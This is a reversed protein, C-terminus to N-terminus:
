FLNKKTVFMSSNVKKVEEVKPQSVITEKIEEKPEPKNEEIQPTNKVEPVVVEEKFSNNNSNAVLTDPNGFIDDTAFMDTLDATKEPEQTVVNKPSEVVTEKVEKIVEKNNEPLTTTNNEEINHLDEQVLENAEIANELGTAKVNSDDDLEIIKLLEELTTLGDLVKDIGDQLLSIVDSTYVLRRLKDKRVNSSIADKINQDILLVEHIAIRGNYGNKCKDCGVATYIENLENGTVKKIIDKEYDNTPRLKRCHPCLKRALKQSIIGTLASALLYREVEM